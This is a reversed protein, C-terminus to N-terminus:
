VQLAAPRRAPAVRRCQGREWKWVGARAFTQRENACDGRGSPAQATEKQRSWWVLGGISSQRPEMAQPVSDEVQSCHLALPAPSDFPSRNERGPSALSDNASHHQGLLGVGSAWVGIVVM